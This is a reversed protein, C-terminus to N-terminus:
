RLLADPGELRGAFYQSWKKKKLVFFHNWNAVEFIRVSRGLASQRGAVCVPPPWETVAGVQATEDEVRVGGAPGARGGAM